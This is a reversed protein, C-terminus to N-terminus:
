KEGYQALLYAKANFGLGEDFLENVEDFSMTKSLRKLIKKYHNPIAVTDFVHRTLESINEGFTECHMPASITSNGERTLLVVRKSPIEQIVIPSHTAIIAFSNHLSLMKNLVNFLHAVANPHLHTEPEDFLVLTNEQIRAVLATVFHVLISQGSSLLSLPDSNDESSGVKSELHAIFEESTNDLIESMFSFWEDTRGLETIKSHNSIYNEILSSKSLSGKDNRIGCYVYSAQPNKPRIFRDFASYSVTIVRNFIPRRGEFKNVKDNITKQSVRGIQVLDKALSGMLQTKGVANRGIIGVIRGPLPDSEDFDVNITFSSEAGDIFTTYKFSFEENYSEGLIIAKGFRFSNLASNERFLANRYESKSEFSESKHPKWSIDNLSDLVEKSKSFGVTQLLKKYFEITQGLSIYNEDLDDFENPLKTHNQNTQLIKLKGIETSESKSEHYCLHFTCVTGYDDWSDTSISFVPYNEATLSKKYAKVKFM